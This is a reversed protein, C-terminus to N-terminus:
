HMLVVPAVSLLRAPADAPFQAIRQQALKEASQLDEADIQVEFERSFTVNFKKAM